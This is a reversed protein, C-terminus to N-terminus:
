SPRVVLFSDLSDQRIRPTATGAPARYVVSPVASSVPSSGSTLMIRGNVRTLPHTTSCLSAQHKSDILVLLMLPPSHHLGTSQSPEHEIIIRSGITMAQQGLVRTLM